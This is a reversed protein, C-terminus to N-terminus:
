NFPFFDGDTVDMYEDGGDDPTEVEKRAEEKQTEGKNGDAFEMEDVVVDTAYVKQGDKNIYSDTRVHGFVAIKMGKKLYREVLEGMKGFAVCSPFDSEARENERKGRRKVALTYRAVTFETGDGDKDTKTVYPDRTLRGMLMVKNM